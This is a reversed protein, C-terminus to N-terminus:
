LGYFWEHFFLHDYLHYTHVYLHFLFLFIYLGTDASKSRKSPLNVVVEPASASNAHKKMSVTNRKSKVEVPVSAAPAIDM